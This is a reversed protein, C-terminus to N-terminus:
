SRRKVDPLPLCLTFTAGGGPESVVNITGRHARAVSAVISLGLGTGEGAIDTTYFRDFVKQLHEPAIGPGHDAVQLCLNRSDASEEVVVSVPTSSGGYRLANELLNFLAAELELPRGM